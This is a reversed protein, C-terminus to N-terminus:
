LGHPKRMELVAEAPNSPHARMYAHIGRKLSHLSFTGLELFYKLLQQIEYLELFIHPYAGSKNLNVLDYRQPGVFSSSM